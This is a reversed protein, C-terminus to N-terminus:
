VAFDCFHPHNSVLTRSVKLDKELSDQMLSQKWSYINRLVAREEWGRRMNSLSRGFMKQSLGEAIADAEQESEFIEKMHKQLAINEQMLEVCRCYLPSHSLCKKQASGCCKKQVAGLDKCTMVSVPDTLKDFGM